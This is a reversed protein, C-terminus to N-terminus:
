GQWTAARAIAVMMAAMIATAHAGVDAVLTVADGVAVTTPVREGSGDADTDGAGLGVPM